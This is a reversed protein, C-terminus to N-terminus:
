KTGDDNIESPKLALRVQEFARDGIIRNGEATFHFDDWYLYEKTNPVVTQDAAPEPIGFGCSPCAPDSVNQFGFEDPDAIIEDTLALLDLRVIVIGLKAELPALQEELRANFDAVFRDWAAKPANGPSQSARALNPVLFLKGGAAALTAVHEAMAKAAADAEFANNHGGQVVILEDGDLTRGDRKLFYEIQLGLNPACVEAGDVMVCADSFGDGAKAGGVAYNRGGAESPAPVPIGEGPAGLKLREALREVWVPGNTLRGDFYPAAAVRGKSLIFANGNDCM